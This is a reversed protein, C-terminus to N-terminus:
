ETGVISPYFFTAVFDNVQLRWQFVYSPDQIKIVVWSNVFKDWVDYYAELNKNM